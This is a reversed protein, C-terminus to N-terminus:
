VYKRSSSLRSCLGKEYLEEDWGLGQTWGCSMDCGWSSDGFIEPTTTRPNSCNENKITLILHIQYTIKM